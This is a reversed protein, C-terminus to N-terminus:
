RRDASSRSNKTWARARETKRESKDEPVQQGKEAPTALTAM